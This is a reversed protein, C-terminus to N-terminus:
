FLNQEARATNGSEELNSHIGLLRQLYLRSPILGLKVTRSDVEATAESTFKGAKSNGEFDNEQLQPDIILNVIANICCVSSNPAM